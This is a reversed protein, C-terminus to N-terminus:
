PEKESTPEPSSRESLQVGARTGSGAEADKAMRPAVMKRFLFRRFEYPFSPSGPPAPLSLGSRKKIPIRPEGAGLMRAIVPTELLNDFRASNNGANTGGIAYGM